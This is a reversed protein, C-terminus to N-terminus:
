VPRRWSRLVADVEAEPFVCRPWAIQLWRRGDERHEGVALDGHPGRAVPLPLDQGRQHSEPLEFALGEPSRPDRDLAGLPDHFGYLVLALSEGEGEWRADVHLVALRLRLLRTVTTVLVSGREHRAALDRLATVAEPPLLADANPSQALHVYVASWGGARELVDLKAPSLTRALSDAGGDNFEGYRVFRYVGRGDRLRVPWLLRNGYLDYNHAGRLLDRYALRRALARGAWGFAERVIRPGAAEVLGLRREQGPVPTVDGLWAFTVGHDLTLDAHYEEPRDDLDELWPLDGFGTRFNQFDHGTGHNIWTRFVAGHCEAEAVADRAHRRRFGGFRTFNGYTHLSDVHGSRWLARLPASAPTERTSTGAWYSFPERTPEDTYFWFTSGVELGLGPGLPTVARTNLFRLVELFWAPSPTDDVDNALAVAARYPFPLPRPRAIM